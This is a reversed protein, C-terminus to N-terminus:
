EWDKLLSHNTAPDVAVSKANSQGSAAEQFGSHIARAKLLDSCARPGRVLYASFL